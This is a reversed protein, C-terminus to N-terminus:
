RCCKLSVVFELFFIRNRGRMKGFRGRAFPGGGWFFPTRKWCYLIKRMSYLFTMPFHWEMRYVFLALIIFKGNLFSRLIYRKVFCFCCCCFCSESISHLLWLFENLKNFHFNFMQETTLQNLKTRNQKWEKGKWLQQFMASLTPLSHIYNYWVNTDNIEQCIWEM